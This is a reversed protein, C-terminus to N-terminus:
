GRNDEMDDAHKYLVNAIWRATSASITVAVVPVGAVLEYDCRNELDKATVRVWQEYTPSEYRRAM